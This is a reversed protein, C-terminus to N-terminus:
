RFIRFYCKQTDPQLKHLTSLQAGIEWHCKQVSNVKFETLWMLCIFWFNVFLYVLVYAFLFIFTFHVWLALSRRRPNKHKIRSTSRSGRIHITIRIAALIQDITGQDVGRGGISIEDFGTRLKKLLTDSLCLRLCVFLCLYSCLRNGEPPPLLCNCCCKLTSDLSSISNTIRV